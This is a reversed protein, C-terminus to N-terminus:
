REEEDSIELELEDDSGELCPEEIDDMEEDLLELVEAMDFLAAM